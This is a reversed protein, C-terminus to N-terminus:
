GSRSNILELLEKEGIVEVGLSTAKELKSGPNEGLLLYSTKRSVSDTTKGGHMEILNKADERSLSPLTGTIVFVMGSFIGQTGGTDKPQETPWIGLDKFKKLLRQNAPRDFWDRISIAINPGIGNVSTLEEIEAISLRDLDHFYKALDQSTVEGVGRIGLSNMFRALPRNRSDSIAQIINEAKKAAFGELDIIDEIKLLYLDAVDKILGSDVLQEVIKIGLGEIDMAGRSVFHEVNRVLQAPCSTNVCYYAVEGPLNEVKQSCSPCCGPIKFVIEMGTRSGAIPGIVYPIVDGARKILVRDNIRIDKEAIFDFNHLTAQKIIVGGLEVPELIAYPTIVGTRGVNVGIDNLITSVERAPYKLAIASRPDKGAVGLSNALELDDIKIVVGDVEFPITDRKGMWGDVQGLVGSISDVRESLSSVPFGAEKLFMLTQWQSSIMPDSSEVIAYTLLNLPRRRTVLPDLQRLSGSATNRPNQYTKEGRELIKENLKEFDRFNIYVEGRVVFHRPIEQGNEEVPIKLPLARITKLNGTVDEGVEGDGRTAGKTFVGNEYHLVVTLGDIKPEMVFGSQDVRSDLKRIRDYWTILEEKNFANALSLIPAPHSVKQFKEVVTSGIRRAPSDPTVMEPYQDELQQLRKIMMDYEYDSIVPDELVHYRYNHYNIDKQLQKIESKETENNM